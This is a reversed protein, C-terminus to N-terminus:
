AIPQPRDRIWQSLVWKEGSTPPRGAHLTRRDPAGQPDANVFYLAEGPRGKFKVGLDLFETEGGEYADNLYILFTGIRQGITALEEQFHSVSPDLYDVHPEYQQGPRYHLVNAAEQQAITIRTAAAIRARVLLMVLDTDLLGFGAVTNSRMEDLGTGGEVANSVRAPAERQRAREILWACVAPPAIRAFSEIRPSASIVKPAAARGWEAIDIAKRLRKWHTSTETWRGEKAALVRLQGQAPAHGLEASRQLLDLADSWSQARGVGTAALVALRAAADGAGAETARALLAAGMAPEMPAARGVLLRVGLYTMSAVHGGNAAQELWGVAVDHRGERDFLRALAFQADGDGALAKAKLEDSGSM